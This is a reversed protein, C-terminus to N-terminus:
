FDLPTLYMDSIAKGVLVNDILRVNGLRIVASLIGGTGHSIEHLESMDRPSAVSIYEIRSVRPESSLVREIEEKVVKASVLAKEQQSEVLNVGHVLAKYLISAAPRESATLYVNRSSMALGDMERITPCVVVRVPFNLDTVMQRILICQSIDKQGFYANTPQVINFLKAVVTAVGRFFEPRARGEDILSFAAPEVHTLSYAPYMESREPAFVIDVGAEQLMTIDRELTRPYKDFDEGASFQTPNVFLSAVVTKNCNRASEVLSLHGQHLAGMTPVFGIRAPGNTTLKALHQRYAEISRCVHINRRQIINRM